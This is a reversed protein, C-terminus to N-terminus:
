FFFPQLNRFVDRQYAAHVLINDQLLPSLFGWVFSGSSNIVQDSAVYLQRCMITMPGGVDNIHPIVIVDDYAAFYTLTVEYHSFVSGDLLMLLQQLHQSPRGFPSVGGLTVAPFLPLHWTPGVLSLCVTWVDDACCHLRSQVQHDTPSEWM